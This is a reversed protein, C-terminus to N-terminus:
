KRVLNASNEGLIVLFDIHTDTTLSEYGDSTVSLEKPLIDGNLLYGTASLTVDADLFNALAKLADSRKGNTLDYIVTHTYGRTAANGVKVIDFGNGDLLQSMKFALGTVDTGNQIEVRVFRPKTETTQAIQAQAKADFINSALEQLPRWDDNKPLLVYAGNVSAAYLQSNEEVDLVHSTLKAGDFSKLLEAVRLFEGVSLNTKINDRLTDMLRTIRLPNLLTKASFVKDKVALLVNQQRRARAFDSGEGNTGHRSRVYKLATTGDLHTWGQVFSLAEFRCSYNSVTIAEGEASAGTTEGCETNERGDIPYEPDTFTRDVYIDVGGIDDILESFGDFDVRIYYPIEQSLIDGVVRAALEPGHGQDDQEGFANAHNIKRWGYGPIPVSLDRPISILGARNSSPELSAFIITDTLQPGEHGTGGIGLLLINVRDNKEGQLARLDSTVIMRITSFLSPHPFSNGKDSTQAVRYSFAVGLTAIVVLIMCLSRIFFSFSRDRPVGIDYKQKLLDIKPNQLTM